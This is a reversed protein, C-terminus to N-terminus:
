SNICCSGFNSGSNAFFCSSASLAPSTLLERSM